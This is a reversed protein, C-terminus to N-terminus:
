SPHFLGLAVERTHYYHNSENPGLKYCKVDVTILIDTTLM